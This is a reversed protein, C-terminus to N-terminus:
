GRERINAMYQEISVGLRHAIQLQEPTPKVEANNGRQGSGAGGDLGPAVPKDRLPLRGAELLEQVAEEVGQATGDDALSVASRDALRFADEPHLAGAQAAVAVFEARLLRENATAIAEAAQAEAQERAERLRELETKQAAEYEAWKEAREKLADYDAFKQRERGLRDAVIRDVDAQTFAAPQQGGGTANANQEDTM